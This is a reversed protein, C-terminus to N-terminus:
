VSSCRSGESSRSRGTFLAQFLVAMVLAFALAGFVPHTLWADLRETTTRFANADGTVADAVWADILTYRAGIITTDLDTQAVGCAAGLTKGVSGLTENYPIDGGDSSSGSSSDIDTAQYDNGNTQLKVGGILSQKFGAGIM